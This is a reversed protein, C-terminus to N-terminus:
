AAKVEESPPSHLRLEDLADLNVKVPEHSLAQDTVKWFEDNHVVTGGERRLLEVAAKRAAQLVSGHAFAAAHAEDKARRLRIHESETRAYEDLAAKLADPDHKPANM